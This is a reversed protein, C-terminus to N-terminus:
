RSRPRTAFSTALQVTYAFVIVLLATLGADRGEGRRVFVITLALTFLRGLLYALRLPLERRQDDLTGAYRDVGVGVARLAIWVGAGAAYGVASVGLLLMLPAAVIVLVVDFFRLLAV